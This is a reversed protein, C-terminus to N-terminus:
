FVPEQGPYPPASLTSLWAKALLVVLTDFGFEDGENSTNSCEHSHKHEDQQGLTPIFASQQVLGKITKLVKIM